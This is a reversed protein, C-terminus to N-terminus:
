EGGDIDIAPAKDTVATEGRKRDSPSPKEDRIRANGGIDFDAGEFLDQGERGATGQGRHEELTPDLNNNKSKGSGSNERM